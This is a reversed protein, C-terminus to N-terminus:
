SRPQHKKVGSMVSSSKRRSVQGGRKVLSVVEAGSVPSVPLRLRRGEHSRQADFPRAMLHPPPQYFAVFGIAATLSV